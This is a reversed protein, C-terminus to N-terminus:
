GTIIKINASMAGTILRQAGEIEMSSDEESVGDIYFGATTFTSQNDLIANRSADVATDVDELAHSTDKVVLLINITALYDVASKKDLTILESSPIHVSLVMFPLQGNVKTMSPVKSKVKWGSPKNANLITYVSKYITSRM